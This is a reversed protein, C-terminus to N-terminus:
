GRARSRRRAAAGCWRGGRAGAPTRRARARAALDVLARPQQGRAHLHEDAARALADVGEDVVRPHRAPRGPGVVRQAARRASAVGAPRPRAVRRSPRRASTGVPRRHGIAVTRARHALGARRIRGIETQELRCRMSRERASDATSSSSAQWARIAARLPPAGVKSPAGPAMLAHVRRYGSSAASSARAASARRAVSPSAAGSVHPIGKASLSRKATPPRPRVADLRTSSPLTAAASLATHRRRRAWPATSAPWLVGVLEGRAPGGVLDAVRPRGVADAPPDLPPDAAASAARM